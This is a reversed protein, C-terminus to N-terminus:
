DVELLNEVNESVWTKLRTKFIKENKESLLTPPLQNHWHVALWCWSRRTLSLDCDPICPQSLIGAAALTRAKALSQRTNRQPSGSTIKQYLYLPKQNKFVKRLLILSHYVMLQKVSLWGCQKLLVKTPTFRDLKTVLRAARNQCVQLADVLYEECGSWAPMLYILKSIFIGDAIMRRTRFSSVQCIQKLAGVRRNLSKVLANEGDLIHERWKMNQHVQAGLLRESESPTIVATPTIITINNTDVYRRKQKTSMIILHTKDDNVKLKNLTLFDAIASFKHTLKESLQLPDRGVVTYTSDDAYCCVGGCDQCHLTFLKSEDSDKLPCTNEHVVEPLENTFITYLIPGLISGQPVGAELSKYGSLSGEIYVRQSRYTLYSWFWQVSGRDCGYLKLKELLLETDVVDFAASMDIMCVAALEGQELAEVWTTYMQLIATTTSHFSRYAHHGPNYFKNADMYTVLQQFMLRELVKSLIPLIAVPRYSKPELKSGKGKYLPIIKAVKWKTPFKKTQISLNVIHCVSPVIFNRTLKLIYTDLNDFGCAKSNKLSRIVKDVEEPTVSKVSFSARNDKLHNKLVKLPDQGQEMFSSRIARVKDIYYQNQIDAMKSTSTELNGEHLLKSPSRASSWGLWGSISKWMKGSDSNTECDELKAKQWALKDKRLLATVDNRLKKYVEWDDQDRSRTAIQQASDRDKMKKKTEKAVWAAYKTRIQFKKVPAMKDLISTLKKTFIDVAIDVDNCEYVEWWSIRGVEEIFLKEDFDRYSRKQCYKIKQRINSAYKTALIFRHDSSGCFKVQVPSLKEPANTYVHDLGSPNQGPWSHTVGQVCQVVGHPYIRELMADVLPQLAGAKSFKLHDINCDGLVIVEKGTALARDWQDLFIVWRRMQEQITNSQQGRNVQGMYRWERYLQCILFKRKGPLGLELWISSFQDSMLDDRVKGVMSQHKYCVIRSILLQDNQITKSTILEYEELQVSQIDHDSKLNAESIGLVHPHTESVAQEIEHIKNHLYASGANWHALKIGRNQRNGTITKVLKNRQKRSLWFNYSPLNLLVNISSSQMGSNTIYKVFKTSSIGESLPTYEESSNGMSCSIDRWSQKGTNIAQLVGFGVILSLYLTLLKLLVWTAASNSSNPARVINFSKNSTKPTFTGIRVRYVQLSCTM